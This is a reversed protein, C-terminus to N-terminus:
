YAPVMPRETFRIKEFKKQSFVKKSLPDPKCIMLICVVQFINGSLVHLHQQAVIDYCVDSEFDQGMRNM